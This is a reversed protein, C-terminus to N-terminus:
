RSTESFLVPKGVGVCTARVIRSCIRESSLKVADAPTAGFLNRAFIAESQFFGSPSKTMCGSASELCSISPFSEHTGRPHSSNRAWSYKPHFAVALRAGGFLMEGQKGLVSTSAETVSSM